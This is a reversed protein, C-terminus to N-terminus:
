STARCKRDKIRPASRNRGPSMGPGIWIYPPMRRQGMASSSTRRHGILSRHRHLLWVRDCCFAWQAGQAWGGLAGQSFSGLASPKPFLALARPWLFHTAAVTGIRNSKSVPLLAADGPIKSDGLGSTRFHCLLIPLLRATAAALLASTVSIKRQMEYPQALKQHQKLRQLGDRVATRRTSPGPCGPQM